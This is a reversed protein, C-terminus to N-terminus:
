EEQKFAQKGGRVVRVAVETEEGEKDLQQNTFGESWTASQAGMDLSSTVGEQLYLKMVLVAIRDGEGSDEWLIKGVTKSRVNKPNTDNFKIKKTSIIQTTEAGQRRRREARGDNSKKEPELGRELNRNGKEKQPYISSKGQKHDAGEEEISPVM